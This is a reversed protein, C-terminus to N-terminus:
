QLKMKIYYNIYYDTELLSLYRGVYIIEVFM